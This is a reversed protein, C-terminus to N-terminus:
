RISKAGTAAVPSFFYWMPRALPSTPSYTSTGPSGPRVGIIALYRSPARSTAKLRSYRVKVPLRRPTGTEVIEGAHATWGHRDADFLQALPPDVCEQAQARAASGLGLDLHAVEDDAEARHSGLARGVAVNRELVRCHRGEIDDVRKDVRRFRCARWVVDADDARNVREVRVEHGVAHRPTVLQSLLQRHPRAGAHEAVIHLRRRQKNHRADALQTRACDVEANVLQAGALDMVYVRLVHVAHKADRDISHLQEDLVVTGSFTLLWGSTASLRAPRRSEAVGGSSNRFRARFSM